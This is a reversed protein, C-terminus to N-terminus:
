VLIDHLNNKEIYKQAYSCEPIIKVGEQRAYDVVMNVLQSATGQGRFEDSVFTHDIILNGSSDKQYSIKAKPDAEDEGIYFKNQGHKIDEM